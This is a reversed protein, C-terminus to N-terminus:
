IDRIVEIVEGTGGAVLVNVVALELFAHVFQALVTLRHSAFSTVRGLSPAFEIPEIVIRCSERQRTRMPGYSANIAVFGRIEFGLEDVHVELLSRFFAFVAVFVDVSVLEILQKRILDGQTGVAVVCGFPLWRQEIVVFSSGKREFALMAIDGAGAAVLEETCDISLLDEEVRGGCLATRITVARLDLRKLFTLLLLSTVLPTRIKLCKELIGTKSHSFLCEDKFFNCKEVGVRGKRLTIKTLDARVFEIGGCTSTYGEVVIGRQSLKSSM